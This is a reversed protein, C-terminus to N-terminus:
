SKRNILDSKEESLHNRCLWFGKDKYYGYYEVIQDLPLSMEKSIEKLSVPKATSGQSRDYIKELFLERNKIRKQIENKREQEDVM